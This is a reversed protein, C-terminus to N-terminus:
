MTKIELVHTDDWPVIYGTLKYGINDETHMIYLGKKECM